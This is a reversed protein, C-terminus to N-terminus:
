RRDLKTSLIVPMEIRSIGPIVAIIGTEELRRLRDQVATRSLRSAEATM